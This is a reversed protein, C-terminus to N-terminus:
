LVAFRSKVESVFSYFPTTDTLEPHWALGLEILNYVAQIRAGPIINGQTDRDRGLLWLTDSVSVLASIDHAVIFITNKEDLAAVQNILACTRDKMIPDLGTFPEDMIIFHESCLLQQIIAVRQRQGGSLQSPYHSARDVLDFRKLHEMAKNRAAAGSLGAQKAAVILNGLVTRHRILPYNQAVLGVLGAEARKGGDVIVEGSTPAQLGAMIRGIQTKGVGSPGLIGVVQGQTLGPRIIDRVEANVHSLIPVGDFSLSVDKIAV